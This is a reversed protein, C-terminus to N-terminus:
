TPRWDNVDQEFDTLLADLTTFVYPVETGGAHRHDGKGRENDYRVRCEVADGFFLRYKYRHACPLVSTDLLWVVMEIIAGDPRIFKQRLISQAAVYQMNAITNNLHLITSVRVTDSWVGRSPRTWRVVARCGEAMVAVGIREKSTSEHRPTDRYWSWVGYRLNVLCSYGINARVWLSSVAPVLGVDSVPILGGRLGCPHQRM